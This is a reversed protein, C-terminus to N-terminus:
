RNDILCEILHVPVIVTDNGNRIQLIDVRHLLMWLILAALLGLVLYQGIEQMVKLTTPAIQIALYIYIAYLM